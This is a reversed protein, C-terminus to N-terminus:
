KVAMTVTNLAQTGGVSITVPVAEGPDLSAPVRANIQMVGAVLGPAGGQYAVSATQGGIMVGIPAASSPPNKLPILTGDGVAPHLVGSGTAYIAVYSGRAAPNVASNVTLDSNLIAGHGAGVTFIAPAAASVPLTVAYIRGGLTKVRMETTSKGAVSFPVVANIQRESVYLLPATIGDFLVTVGGLSTALTGDATLRPGAALEPGLSVGFIAILEGPSITNASLSAANAVVQIGPVPLLGYVSVQQSDTPVYVKGNAVTPNAFKTFNGLSDRSLQTDTNWLEQSVDLANFAHLTGPAPLTGGNNMTTAWLIGSEPVTGNSSISMGSFPETNAALSNVSIASTNFTGNVLRFARLPDEIGWIYLIPGDPRNWLASNYIAPPPGVSAQFIQVVGADADLERGMNTRDILAV